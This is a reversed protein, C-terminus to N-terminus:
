AIIWSARARPLVTNRLECTIGSTSRTQSRTAIRRSPRSTVTSSMPSRFAFAKRVISNWKVSGTGASANVASGDTTAAVACPSLTRSVTRPSSSSTTFSAAVCETTSTVVCSGLRSSM